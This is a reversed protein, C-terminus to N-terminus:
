KKTDTETVGKIIHEFLSVLATGQEAAQKNTLKVRYDKRAIKKFQELEDKTILENHDMPEIGMHLIFSELSTYFQNFTHSSGSFLTSKLALVLLPECSTRYPAAYPHGEGLSRFM